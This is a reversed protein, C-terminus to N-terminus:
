KKSMTWTGHLGEQNNIWTGTMTGNRLFQGSFTAGNTMSGSFIGNSGISANRIETNNCSGTVIISQSATLTGTSSSSITPVSANTSITGTNSITGSIATNASSVTTSSANSAAGTNSITGSIATNTSSASTASAGNTSVNSSSTSTNTDTTGSNLYALSSASAPRAITLTCTGSDGGSYPGTWTGSYEALLNNGLHAQASTTTVLSAKRQNTAGSIVPTINAELANVDATFSLNQQFAARATSDITIGNDPNGDADLTQLVRAMLSVSDNTESTAGSILDTPFVRENTVTLSGLTLNGIKFTVPQGEEYKFSGDAGTTGSINGSTYQVGEVASDIFYGTKVSTGSSSGGSCGIMGLLMLAIVVGTKGEKINVM